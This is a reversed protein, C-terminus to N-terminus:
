CICDLSTNQPRRSYLTTLKKSSFLAGGPFFIMTRVNASSACDCFRVVGIILPPQSSGVEM